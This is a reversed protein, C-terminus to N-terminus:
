AYFVVVSFNRSSASSACGCICITGNAEVTNMAATNRKQLKKM